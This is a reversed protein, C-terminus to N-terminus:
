IDKSYIMLDEREKWGNHSWFQRGTENKAFVFLHCKDIKQIKLASLATQILRRGVGQNRLTEDVALHYIYGRRGDQGCMITGVIQGRHEAVYNLQKNRKLFASTKERSDADNIGIGPTNEWLHMMQNYDESRM